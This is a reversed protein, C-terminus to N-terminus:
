EPPYTYQRHGVIRYPLYLVIRAPPTPPMTDLPLHRQSAEGEIWSCYYLLPRSNPGDVQIDKLGDVQDKSVRSCCYGWGKM